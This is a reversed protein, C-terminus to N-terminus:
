FNLHYIIYLLVSLWNWELFTHHFLVFDAGNMLDILHNFDSEDMLNTYNVQKLGVSYISDFSPLNGQTVSVNYCYKYLLKYINFEVTESCNMITGHHEFLFYSAHLLLEEIQSM